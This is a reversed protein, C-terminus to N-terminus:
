GAAEQIASAPALKAARWAPYLGAVTVVIILELMVWAIATPDVRPVLEAGGIMWRFAEIGTEVGIIGLVTTIASGIVAGVFGAILSLIIGEALFVFRISGRSTGLARM